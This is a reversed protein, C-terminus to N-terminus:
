HNAEPCARQRLRFWSACASIFAHWLFVRSVTYECFEDLEAKLEEQAKEAEALKRTIEEVEHNKEDPGSKSEAEVGQEGTGLEATTAVAKSAAYLSERLVAVELELENVRATAVTAAEAQAVKADREEKLTVLRERMEEVQQQARARAPSMLTPTTGVGADVGVRLSIPTHPSKSKSGPTGGRAPSQISSWSSRTSSPAGSRRKYGRDFLDDDALAGLVRDALGQPVPVGSQGPCWTERSRKTRRSRPSVYVHFDDEAGVGRIVANADMAGVAAAAAAAAAPMNAINILLNSLREIKAAQTAKEAQLTDLKGQLAGSDAQEAQQRRLAALEQSMRRLQAKDDLVENVIARTKIMKARSAFQLTSRTEELFGEAPTACCIIAMSANGSLSPQLIRTLKSDRYNVHPTGGQSLKQIVQSLTLLSRNINGGEKQRLGTAGTHRVSESGALDVLNLTAVLVAPDVDDESAHTGRVYHQQSEVVLRFLTHSRSSRSNMETCGVHRQQEGSNLIRLVHDFGAVVEEHADIYVGKRPDERVQM